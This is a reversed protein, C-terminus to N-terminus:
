KHFHFIKKKKPLMKIHAVLVRRHGLQRRNFICSERKKKKKKKPIRSCKCNVFSAWLRYRSLSFSLSFYTFSSFIHSTLKGLVIAGLIACYVSIIGENNYEEEQQHVVPDLPKTIVRRSPHGMDKDLFHFYYNINWKWWEFVFKLVDPSFNYLSLCVSCSLLESKIQVLRFTERDLSCRKTTTTDTSRTRSFYIGEKRDTQFYLLLLIEMQNKFLRHFRM